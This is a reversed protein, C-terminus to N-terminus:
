GKSSLLHAEFHRSETSNTMYLYSLLCFIIGFKLSMQANQAGGFRNKSSMMLENLQLSLKSM